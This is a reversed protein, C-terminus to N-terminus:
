AVVFVQHLWIFLHTNFFLFIDTISIAARKPNAM